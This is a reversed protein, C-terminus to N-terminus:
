NFRATKINYLLAKKYSNFKEIELTDFDNNIKFMKEIDKYTNNTNAFNIYANTINHMKASNMAEQLKEVSYEKQINKENVKVDHKTLKQLIRMIVLSIFCILFHGEIRSKNSVYVPRGELDSKVIRFSEEIKTLGRYKEIIEENSLHTESTIIAYYGDLKIDEKFKTENFSYKVKAGKIKVGNKDIVNETIYAKLGKDLKPLVDQNKIFNLIKRKDEDRVYKKRDAYDKSWFFVTKENVVITKGNSNKIKREDTISKCKWSKSENYEYGQEDLTKDVFEKSMGKVRQSVIYGNGDNVIYSINEKSNLGKDAVVIVKGIDYKDKMEKLIPQLTTTDSTNGEFLRYSVPISNNDIILGMVVLPQKKGDKGFGNKRFGKEVNGLDDVIDEDNQHIEFYYNTVDYFMLTLDRGYKESINKHINFQLEDKLENFVDLSRYIDNININFKEFFIDKNEFTALKSDPNLIRSFVLLKMADDLSYKIKLKNDKQYNTLFKDIGINEYIGQALFYGYNIDDYRTIDKLYIKQNEKELKQLTENKYKEKLELFINPNNKELEELIGLNKIKRHKVKGNERYGETLHLIHTGNRQKIKKVFM